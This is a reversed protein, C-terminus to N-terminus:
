KKREFEKVLINVQDNLHVTDGSVKVQDGINLQTYAKELRMVSMTIIYTKGDNGTLTAMYGDKGPVTAKITGEAHFAHLVVPAEPCAVKPIAIWQGSEDTEPLRTKENYRMPQQLLQGKELKFLLPLSDTTGEQMYVWVAKITGENITGKITGKRIDKEFLNNVMTGTVAEGMIDMSVSLTDQKQNGSVLSFCATQNQVTTSDKTESSPNKESQQCASFLGISLLGIGAYKYLHKVTNKM